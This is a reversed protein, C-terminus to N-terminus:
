QKRNYTVLYLPTGKQTAFTEPHKKGSLDYCIRLTDGDLEYIALFTKGANPGGEGGTIAMKGPRAAPDIKCTGQDPKGNALITYKDGEITLTVTWNVSEGALETKVATWTGQLGKADDAGYAATSIAGSALLIGVMLFISSSLVLRRM